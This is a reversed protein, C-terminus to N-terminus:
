ACCAGELHRGGQGIRPVRSLRAARPRPPSPLAAGKERRRRAAANCILRDLPRGLKFEQLDTCFSRVSDFSNLEVHMPTFFDPSFGEIEAVAEMKDLDRVAGVM